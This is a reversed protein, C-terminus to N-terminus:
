IGTIREIALSYLSSAVAEMDLRAMKAPSSATGAEEEIGTIREM